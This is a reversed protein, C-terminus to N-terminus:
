ARTSRCARLFRELLARNFFGEGGREPHWQVGLYFPRDPDDVAEIVGDPATAVVRLRGPDEVAQRHSSAVTGPDTDPASLATLVSDTRQVVVQHRSNAQHREAEGAAMVEPLFQNLRGGAHLTMLQMGLCVGLAPRQPRQRLADLLALEFAQRRDDMPRAKAHTPVGFCETRADAGGTLIIGDCREVYEAALQPEHPLVVPLGGAEVVVRSYAIASEYKGSAATNDRNDATIGILPLM